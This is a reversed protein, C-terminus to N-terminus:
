RNDVWWSSGDCIVDIFKFRSNSSISGTITLTTGSYSWGTPPPTIGTLNSAVGNIIFNSTPGGYLYFRILRGRFLASPTPLTLTHTRDVFYFDFVQATTYASMDTTQNLSLEPGVRLTSSNRSLINGNSDKVLYSDNTNSSEPITRIRLNGNIDLKATPSTTNIGVNGTQSFVIHSVWVFLFLIIKKMIIINHLQKFYSLIICSKYYFIM